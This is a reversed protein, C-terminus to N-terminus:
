IRSFINPLPIAASRCNPVLKEAKKLDKDLLDNLVDEIGAIVQKTTMLEIREIKGSKDNMKEKPISYALNNKLALLCTGVFQSRIKESIGYNHLLSNLQYTNQAVKIRNNRTVFLINKYEGMTRLTREQNDWNDENIEDSGDKWIKFSDNSTAMLIAIVKNKTLEKELLVYNQLQSRDKEFNADSLKSKTEVLITMGKDVFRLDIDKHNAKADCTLYDTYNKGVAKLAKAYSFEGNEINTKLYSKGITEIIDIRYM